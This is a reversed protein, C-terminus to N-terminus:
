AAAQNGQPKNKNPVPGGITPTPFVLRATVGGEANAFVEAQGRLQRAFASMLTRGVGEDSLTPPEHSGDAGGRGHDAISLEAEEGHVTFRVSLVGGQEALAHKQANTIAEVAFLALPALKDPDIILADAQVDTRVLRGPGTDAAVLQATLEELFDHLDVTKLDPGQYLARYILALANIRQRTDSMAARAAPDSLTRQQMNILSSIVQLNNKVRHHIERMLADKQALSEHLKADRATIADAMMDLTGALDRLELAARDAKWPRVTFRGRAYIAAIRQLYLLWRVVVSEAVVWVAGLAVVFALLPFLMSSLPNLRAWSFLGQTPESLVVFVQDDLLPAATYVRDIGRGDPGRYIFAGAKRAQPAWGRPPKSFSLPETRSLFEGASDVLAVEAHKPVILDAANPRLGALPLVAVLAGDFGGAPNDARVAALLSADAGYQMPPARTIVTHEGGQLRKFWDTNRRDMDASTSAAACSVRGIRNFRILNAYGPVRDKIEALRQACDFGVAQPTLAELLVSANDIRARATAASRQAALVLAAREDRADKRFSIVSQTAGLLLVPLLALAMAAGLRFRITTLAGAALRKM